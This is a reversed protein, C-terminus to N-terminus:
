EISDILRKAKEQYETFSGRSAYVPYNDTDESLFIQLRNKAKEKQDSELYMKGLVFFSPYYTDFENANREHMIVAKDQLDMSLYIDAIEHRLEPDVGYYKMRKEIVVIRENDEDLIDYLHSLAVLTDKHAPHITLVTEFHDRAKSYNENSAHAEAILFHSNINLENLSLAETLLNISEKHTSLAAKKILEGEKETVPMGTVSELDTILRPLEEKNCRQLAKTFFSGAKEAEQDNYYLIGKMYYAMPMQPAIHIAQDLYTVAEKTNGSEINKTANELIDFYVANSVKGDNAVEPNEKKSSCSVILILFLIVIRKM